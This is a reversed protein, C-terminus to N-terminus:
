GDLYSSTFITRDPQREKKLRQWKTTLQERNTTGENLYAQLIRKAKPLGMSVSPNRFRGNPHGLHPLRQFDEKTARMHFYFSSCKVLTTSYQQSKTPNQVFQLGIKSAKREQILKLLSESKLRYLERNDPATKAHRNVTFIARAIQDTSHHDNM